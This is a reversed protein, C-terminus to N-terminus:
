GLVTSSRERRYLLRNGLAISAIQHITDGKRWREWILTRQSETYCIRPRREM